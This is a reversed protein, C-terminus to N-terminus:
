VPLASPTSGEFPLSRHVESPPQVISTSTRTDRRIGTKCPDIVEYGLAESIPQLERCLFAVLEKKDHFFGGFAEQLNRYLNIQGGDVAKGCRKQQHVNRINRYAETMAETRLIQLFSCIRDIETERQTILDELTLRHVRDPYEQQLRVLIDYMGEISKVSGKLTSDWSYDWINEVPGDGGKLQGRVIKSLCTDIPHRTILIVALDKYRDLLTKLNKWHFGPNETALQTGYGTPLEKHRFLERDEMYETFQYRGSSRVIETIWNTGSHGAGTIVIRSFRLPSNTNRQEPSKGEGSPYTRLIEDLLHSWQDIRTRENVEGVIEVPMTIPVAQQVPTTTFIATLPRCLAGAIHMVVSDIAVIRDARQILAKSFEMDNEPIMVSRENSKRGFELITGDPFRRLVEEVQDPNLTKPSNGAKTHLVVVPKPLGRLFSDAKERAEKAVTLITQLEELKEFDVGLEEAFRFIKHLRYGPKRETPLLIMRDFGNEKAYSEAEACVAQVGGGYDTFDNWADPLIPLIEDIFPLGSLLERLTKGFRKLGLLTIETEPNREKFKRLAPTLMVNDGLGHWSVLLVKEKHSTRGSPAPSPPQLAQGSSQRHLGGLNAVRTCVREWPYGDRVTEYGEQAVTKRAATDPLYHSILTQFEEMDRYWELDKGKRFHQELDPCYESLLFGGCALTHIVRDSFIDSHVLNLIIKSQSIIKRFDKGFVPPNASLNGPWGKGFLTVPVIKQIAEISRIRKETANGIFIVDYKKEEKMPSLLEPDFGEVIQFSRPNAPTFYHTVERCTASAFDTCAAYRDAGLARAADIGDMFWYWTRGHRRAATLCSPAMGNIKSFLILGYSKGELFTLFDQNMREFSGLEAARTRYNYTDVSYGLTEFGKQMATNTSEPRDTVGVILIDATKKQGPRAATEKIVHLIQETTISEMCKWDHCKQWAPTYQCPSCTLNGTMVKVHPGLPRNKDIRTAGFLTVTRAGVAAAMHAPGSDNVVIISCAKMLQASEAVTYKGQLDIIGEPWEEPRFRDAEDKGGFLAVSFGQRILEAALPRYHPWSKRNWAGNSLYTDALGIVPKEEPFPYAVESVPCFPEPLPGTYGFHRAIEMHYESEHLTPDNYAITGEQRCHAHLYKGHHERNKQSWITYFVTEYIIEDPETLIRDVLDWGEIVELAPYRGLIHIPLDPRVKKIARIAPTLMIMNGIGEEMVILIPEKTTTEAATTNKGDIEPQEMSAIAEKLSRINEITDPNSPAIAMCKEFYGIGEELKGEECALVGLNNLIESDDPYEVQLTEFLAKAEGIKGEQFLAEGQRIREERKKQHLSITSAPSVYQCTNSNETM